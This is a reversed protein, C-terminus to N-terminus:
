GGTPIRANITPTARLSSSRSRRSRITRLCTWRRPYLRMSEPSSRPVWACTITRRMALATVFCAPLM